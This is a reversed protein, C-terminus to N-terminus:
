VINSPWNLDLDKIMSLEQLYNTVIRL